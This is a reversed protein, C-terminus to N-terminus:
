RPVAAGNGEDLYVVGCLETRKLYQRWVFRELKRTASLESTLPTGVKPGDMSLAESLVRGDMPKPPQIGLIWLLTPAIDVNGTPLEDVFARRFDPGAAILTSRM